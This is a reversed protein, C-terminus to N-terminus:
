NPFSVSGILDQISNCQQDSVWKKLQKAINPGITPNVFLATGIGVCTAGALIFEAADEWHTIGGTGIIPVNAHKCVDRYIEHVVRVAIPHIAEGSLGGGGKKIKTTKTHVDIALAPITNILTLACAGSEIASEAHSRIDGPAASLKVIMGSSGIASKVETLLEGLRKPCSGFELGDATNPCSVNVEILPIDKCQSMKHATSVYSSISDGAISGIVVADIKSAKQAHNELFSDIGENALGIANIMGVPLDVMRYPVNGKASQETISKTTIGGISSLNIADGIEGLVGCTGAALIVPNRFIETGIQVSQNAM